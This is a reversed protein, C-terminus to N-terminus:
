TRVTNKKYNSNQVKKVEKLKKQIQKSFQLPFVAGVLWGLVKRKLKFKHTNTDTIM